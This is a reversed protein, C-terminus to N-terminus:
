FAGLLEAILRSTEQAQGERVSFWAWAGRRERELIGADVLIKLHHSVTPQSFGLPETLDCVCAAREPSARILSLIQVRTPDALAKILRALEEADSRPIMQQEGAVTPTCTAEATTTM